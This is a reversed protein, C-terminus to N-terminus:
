RLYTALDEPDDKARPAPTRRPAERGESPTEMAALLARLARFHSVKLGDMRMLLPVSDPDQDDWRDAAHAFPQLLEKLVGSQVAINARVNEVVASIADGILPLPPEKYAAIRALIQARALKHKRRKLMKTMDCPKDTTRYVGGRGIRPEILFDGRALKRARQYVVAPSLGLVEALDAATPAKGTLETFVRIAYLTIAIRPSLGGRKATEEKRRELARNLM